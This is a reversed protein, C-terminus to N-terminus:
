EEYYKTVEIKEGKRKQLILTALIKKVTSGQIQACKQFVDYLERPMETKGYKIISDAMKFLGEFYQKKVEQPAPLEALDDFSISETKGEGGLIDECYKQLEEADQGQIFEIKIMETLQEKNKPNEGSQKEFTM